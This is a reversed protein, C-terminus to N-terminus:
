KIDKKDFFLGGLFSTVIMWIFDVVVFRVPNICTMDSLQAAQGFPNVDHLVEYITRKIGTVYHPNIVGDVYEQQVLMSNSHLCLFLLFFALGMCVTIAIAKNGNLITITCYISGYTLCTFMGLVAFNIIEGATVNIEFCNVGIALSTAITLVYVAICASWSVILNSFYVARRTKGSIIKNKIVGDNFDEGVFISILAALAVGYFAMPLFIVRDIAVAYDMATYQMICLMVAILIMAVSCLWFWKRSYMHYFDAPLLKNM